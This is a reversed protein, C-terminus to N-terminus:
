QVFFDTQEDSQCMVRVRVCACACVCVCACVHVCVCRSHEFPLPSTTFRQTFSACSASEESLVITCYWAM